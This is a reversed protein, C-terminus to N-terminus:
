YFSLLRGIYENLNIKGDGDRDIDEVTEKFPFHIIRLSYDTKLIYPSSLFDTNNM